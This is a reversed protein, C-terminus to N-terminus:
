SKAPTKGSRIKWSDFYDSRLVFDKTKSIFLLICKQFWRTLGVKMRLVPWIISLFFIWITNEKETRQIKNPILWNSCLSISKSAGKLNTQGYSRQLNSKDLLVYSVNKFNFQYFLIKENNIVCIWYVFRFEKNNRKPHKTKNFILTHIKLIMILIKLRDYHSKTM